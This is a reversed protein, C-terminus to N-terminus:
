PSRSETSTSTPLPMSILRLRQSECALGRRNPCIPKRGPPWGTTTMTGRETRYLSRAHDLELLERARVTLEGREVRQVEGHLAALHEAEEAGIAGALGGGDAHHHADQHGAAAARQDVAEVAM